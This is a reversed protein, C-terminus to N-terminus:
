RLFACFRHFGAYLNVGKVWFFRWGKFLGSCCLFMPDLNAKATSFDSTVKDLILAKETVGLICIVLKGNWAPGKTHYDVM